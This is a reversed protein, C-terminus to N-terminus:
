GHSACRCLPDNSRRGCIACPQYYLKEAVQIQPPHHRVDFYTPNFKAMVEGPVLQEDKVFSVNSRLVIDGPNRLSAVRANEAIERKSRKDDQEPIV